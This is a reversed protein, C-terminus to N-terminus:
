AKHAANNEKFHTLLMDLALVMLMLYYDMLFLRQWLGKFPILGSRAFLFIIILIPASV